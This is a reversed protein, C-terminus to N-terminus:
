LILSIADLISDSLKPFIFTGASLYQPAPV